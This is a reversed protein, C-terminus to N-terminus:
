RGEILTEDSETNSIQTQSLKPSDPKATSSNGSLVNFLSVQISSHAPADHPPHSSRNADSDTRAVQNRQETASSLPIVTGMLPYNTPNLYSYALLCRAPCFGAGGKHGGGYEDRGGLM